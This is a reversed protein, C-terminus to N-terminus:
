LASGLPNVISVLAPVGLLFAGSLGSFANPSWAM